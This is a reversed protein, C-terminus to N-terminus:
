MEHVLYSCLRQIVYLQLIPMSLLVSFDSVSCLSNHIRTVQVLRLHYQLTNTSFIVYSLFLIIMSSQITIFFAM